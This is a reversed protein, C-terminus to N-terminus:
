FSHFNILSENDQTITGTTYSPPQQQNKKKRKGKTDDRVNDTDVSM